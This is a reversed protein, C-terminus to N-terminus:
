LSEALGPEVRERVADGHDRALDAGRAADDAAFAFAAPQDFGAADLAQNGREAARQRAVDVPRRKAPAAAGERLVVRQCRPARGDGGDARLLPAGFDLVPPEDRSLPM